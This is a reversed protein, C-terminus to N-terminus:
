NLTMMGQKTEEELGELLGFCFSRNLTVGVHCEKLKGRCSYNFFNERLSPLPSNGLIQVRIQDHEVSLGALFEFVTDDRIIELFLQVDENCKMQTDRYHDIELWLGTMSM